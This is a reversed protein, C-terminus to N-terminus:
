LNKKNKKGTSPNTQRAGSGPTTLNSSVCANGRNEFSCLGAKQHVRTSLVTNLLLGRGPGTLCLLCPLSAHGPGAGAGPHGLCGPGRVCSRKGKTQQSVSRLTKEKSSVTARRTMASSSASALTGLHGFVSRAPVPAQPPPPPWLVPLCQGPSGRWWPSHKLTETPAEPRLRSGGLSDSALFSTTKSYVM